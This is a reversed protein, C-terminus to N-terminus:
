GNPASYEVLRSARVVARWVEAHNGTFCAVFKAHSQEGRAPIMTVPSLERKALCDGWVRGRAVSRVVSSTHRVDDQDRKRSQEDDRVLLEICREGALVRFHRGRVPGPRVWEQTDQLSIRNAVRRSAPPFDQARM